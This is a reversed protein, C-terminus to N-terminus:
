EFVGVYNNLNGSNDKKKPEEDNVVWYQDNVVYKYHYEQGPKLHMTM